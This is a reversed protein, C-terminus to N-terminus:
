EIIAAAPQPDAADSATAPAPRPVVIVACSAHHVLYDSTSGLSVRASLGLGRSGVVLLDVGEAVKVLESTARGRVAHGATSGPLGDLAEALVEDARRRAAADVHELHAPAAREVPLTGVPTDWVVWLGLAARHERAWAHALDLAVRAEASGDYAVGVIRPPSATTNKPAIAVPCPAHHLVGRGVDGLLVRGVPGRHPAGLVILDAGRERALRQLARAPSADGIALIEADPAQARARAGELMRSTDEGVAREYGATSARTRFPDRDHVGVLTMRVPRLAQALAIADRGGDLGNVGVIVNRLM